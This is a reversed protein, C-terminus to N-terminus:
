VWTQSSTENFTLTNKTLNNTLSIPILHKYVERNDDWLKPLEKTLPYKCCSIELTLEMCGHFVYNYDQMGGTSCFNNKIINQRMPTHYNTTNSKFKLQSVLWSSHPLVKENWFIKPYCSSISELCEWLTETRMLWSQRQIQKPTVYHRYQLTHRLWKWELEDAGECKWKKRYILVLTM